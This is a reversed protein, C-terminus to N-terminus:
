DKNKRRKCALPPSPADDLKVGDGGISNQGLRDEPLPAQERPLKEGGGLVSITSVSGQM